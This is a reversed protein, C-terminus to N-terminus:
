YNLQSTMLGVKKSLGKRTLRNGISKIFHSACLRLSVFGCPLEEGNFIMWQRNLQQDLELSNFTNSSAHLLAWSNDTVIVDPPSIIRKAHLWWAFLVSSITISNHSESLWELLPLPPEGKIPIPLVIAYLFIPPSSTKQVVSGTADFHVVTKSSPQCFSKALLM